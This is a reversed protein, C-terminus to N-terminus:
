SPSDGTKLVTAAQTIARKQQELERKQLEVLQEKSLAIPRLMNAKELAAAIRNLAKTHEIMQAEALSSM